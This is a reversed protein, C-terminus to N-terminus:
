RFLDLLVEIQRYPLSLKKVVKLADNRKSQLDDCEQHWREIRKRYLEAVDARNGLGTGNCFECRYMPAFQYGTILDSDKYDYRGGRGACHTCSWGEYHHFYQFAHRRYDELDKYPRLPFKYRNKFFSKWSMRIVDVGDRM